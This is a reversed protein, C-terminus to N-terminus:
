GPPDVVEAKIVRADHSAAIREAPRVVLFDDINWNGEVFDRMLGPNGKVCDYRWGLWRACEKTFEKDAETNGLGLDIYAANDYNRVWSETSEMLYPANEKGYTEEYHELTNEYRSKGPQTNTQIWGASYWYTGPNEEFYRRYRDRSGLLFTICDHGRMVVLPTDRAEIGVLGNSCLGYGVLIADYGAGSVEDISGQLESRLTDPTNHLGQKLFRFQFYNPSRAAYYCLERWLVHCAVLYFKKM